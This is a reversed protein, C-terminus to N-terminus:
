PELVASGLHAETPATGFIVGVVIAAVAVLASATGIGFWVWFNDPAGGSSAAPAGGSADDPACLPVQRSATLFVSGREGLLQSSCSLSEGASAGATSVEVDVSPFASREQRVPEGGPAECSLALVYPVGAPVDRVESRFRATAGVPPCEPAAISLSMVGGRRRARARELQEVLQPPAGPPASVEASLAMAIAVHARAASEDDEILRLAALYAHVVAPEVDSGEPDSLAAEFCEEAPGFRAREFLQAGNCGQEAAAPRAAALLLTLVAAGALFCRASRM